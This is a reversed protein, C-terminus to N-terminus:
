PAPLTAAEPKGSRPFGLAVGVGTGSGALLLALFRTFASASIPQSTEALPFVSAGLIEYVFTGVLAGCAGGLATQLVLSTRPLGRGALLGALAGMSGFVAGHVLLPIVMEAAGVLDDNTLLLPSLLWETGAGVIAGLCLGLLLKRVRTVMPTSRSLAFAMSACILAGFAGHVLTAEKRQAILRTKSTAGTVTAGMMSVKEEAAEVRFFGKELLAWICLASLLGALLARPLLSWPSASVPKSSVEEGAQARVEKSIEELPQPNATDM